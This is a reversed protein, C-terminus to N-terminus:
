KNMYNKDQAALVDELEQLQPLTLQRLMRAVIEQQETELLNTPEPVLCNEKYEELAKEHILTEAQAQTVCLTADKVEAKLEEVEEELETVENKLSDYNSEIEQLAEEINETNAAVITEVLPNDMITELASRIKTAEAKM